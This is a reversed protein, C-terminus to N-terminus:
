EKTITEDLNLLVRAVLVYAGSAEATSAAFAGDKGLLKAASEPDKKLRAEQAMLYAEIRGAEEGSPARALLTKFAFAIRHAPDAGAAVMKAALSRACLEYVPDNLLVLAQLPTNTRIRNVTCAERSTADFALFAPYPMTRRWYTYLGRRFRDEGPSTVWRADNYSVNWVGDPQDPMVSPGGVKASLLGAASLANDRVMEASMRFRAGRALLRNEPDREILADSAVSAQKYTNSTVITRLLAKISWGHDMFDVALWDLLDRYIPREGQTGFDGETKVLGIGFLMSWVRNVEVRATLPNSRDTIWEAMGLRNLPARTPMSPLAAPTGALVLKGPSLFAGKIRVYDSPPEVHQKERMILTTDARAVSVENSLDGALKTLTTAEDGKVKGSALLKKLDEVRQAIADFSSDYLKLTPEDATQYFAMLKYFEEQTFPDYKHNHCQCCMLTSGLFVSGTTGVRDVLTLWRQEAQDVGGEENLMTNRNFGTAILDSTDAHPLLDGALQEVVFRDYPVDANFAKIVWDRFPWIRREVDKEYGNTDAYRALDLWPTAMREGYAQSDLLADVLREYADSRRDSLFAERQAATPPLGTLDICVRRLLVERTAEPSPSLKEKELRALVFADIPNQVWAKAKVVPLPAKIPAVYAWHKATSTDFKAGGDIWASISKIDADVLAPFGMPMRGPDPQTLRRIILSQTAHGAVFLPGSKGGRKIGEISDLRLGGSAMAAGHCNTCNSKLLPAVDNAFSARKPQEVPSLAFVM